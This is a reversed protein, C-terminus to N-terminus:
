WSSRGSESVDLVIKAVNQGLDMAGKRCIVKVKGQTARRVFARRNKNAQPESM